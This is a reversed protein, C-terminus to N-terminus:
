APADDYLHDDAADWPDRPIPIARLKNQWRQQAGNLKHASRESIFRNYHKEVMASSTGLWEAIQAVSLGLEVLRTAFYHRFSYAVRKEGTMPDTLADALTLVTDLVDRFNPFSGDPWAFMCDRGSTGQERRWAIHDSLLRRVDFAADGEYVIVSRPNAHKGQKKTIRILIVPTGQQKAFLVNGILVRKAEMGARIGTCAIMAIYTRLMRKMDPTHGATDAVWQDSMVAAVRGVGAADIFARPESDEGVSKDIMPRARRDVVGAAVAEMWVHRLAWDLNGLTMRGPRKVEKTKNDRVRYSDAVWDNLAHDTLSTVPTDGWVPLLDNEIRRALAVFNHGKGKIKSDAETAQVRLKASASEAFRRFAHDDTPTARLISPASDDAAVSAARHRTIPQGCVALTYRDRAVEIAQDWDRVGLSVGDRPTWKGDIRFSAGWIDDAPGRRYNMMMIKDCFRPSPHPKSIRHSAPRGM